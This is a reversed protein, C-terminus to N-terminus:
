PPYSGPVTWGTDHTGDPVTRYPGGFFRGLGKLRALKPRVRRGTGFPTGDPVTRRGRSYNYGSPETCGLSAPVNSKYVGRLPNGLRATPACQCTM